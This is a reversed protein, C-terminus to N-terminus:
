AITINAREVLRDVTRERRLGTTLKAVGSDKELQARVAAPTRGSSGAFRTVERDIDAEDVTINERRAIEDLVLTAKVSEIAGDRQAQRFENWDIDAKRPDVRQEILRRALDEMRRDLEREILVSPVEFTIRRALMALLDSRLDRDADREAEKLLDQRIRERLEELTAFAGLDKAFEDDLDPVVRRKVAKVTIAYEVTKGALDGHKEDDAPYDVTFTKSAGPELGILQEDFGPPNASAGIEITVGDHHEKPGPGDAGLVRRDLDVVPWDGATLPRGEVPEFRASGDRLRELTQDVAGADLAVPRKRLELAEYDGPDIPPVTEFAATFTLPKGEEVVVDTVDPTDIPDMGRASLAEDVAKPVLEHAVEHLIREKFRQRVVQPPIRGPRFGPVRASRALDAAIRSIEADVVESPLEIVLNKRTDTVDVLDAKM